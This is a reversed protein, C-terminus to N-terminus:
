QWPLSKATAIHQVRLVSISIFRNIFLEVKYFFQRVKFLTFFKILM